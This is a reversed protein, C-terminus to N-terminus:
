GINVISVSDMDYAFDGIHLIMDYLGRETEEQLRPLSQANVNGMDGFFALSPSWNKDSPVTNFWFQPSWGKNSGCYYVLHFCFL